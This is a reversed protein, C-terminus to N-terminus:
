KPKPEYFLERSIIMKMVESTGASISSVRADIYMRAIPYDMM